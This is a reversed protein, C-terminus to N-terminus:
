VASKISTRRAIHMYFHVLLLGLLVFFGARMLYPLILGYSWEFSISSLLVYFMVARWHSFEHNEILSAYLVRIFFGLLIMGIPVGLPGFNRLLDGMPTMTFASESFNFYLDAYRQPHIPVPKDPWVFRPIFSVLTDNLINNSIGWSEEYPALVEYNAVVVGLSSVSDIRDGVAQLGSSLSTSFDQALLRDATLGTINAMETVSVQDQTQKVSRFTTGYIMGVILSVFLLVTGTLYHRHSFRRGSLSYAFGALVLMRILGGRTGFFASVALSLLILFGAMLYHSSVWPSTRFLYLWLLCVAEVFIFSSFVILSDFEGAQDPRQYGLVGLAVAFIANALGLGVLLLGPTKVNENRWFIRPLKRFIRYGVKRAYPISYGISLGGYGLMVYVLTLPLNYRENDIYSLFYPKSIGLSLMLGGIAFGPLFYSWAVFVLPHFPDFRGRYFLFISPLLVVAATAFCWPILYLKTESDGVDAGM